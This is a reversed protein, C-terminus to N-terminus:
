AGARSGRRARRHDDDCGGERLADKARVLWPMGTSDRRLAKPGGARTGDGAALVIGAVRTSPTAMAVTSCM